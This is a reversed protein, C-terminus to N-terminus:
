VGVHALAHDSGHGSPERPRQGACASKGSASEPTHLAHGFYGGRGTGRRVETLHRSSGAAPIRLLLRSTGDHGSWTDTTSSCLSSPGGCAPVEESPYKSMGHMQMCHLHM